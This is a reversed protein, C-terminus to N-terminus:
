RCPGTWRAPRSILLRWGSHAGNGFVNGGDARADVGGGASRAARAGVDREHGCRLHVVGRAHALGDGGPDVGAALVAHLFHGFLEGLAGVGARRQVEDAVQLRVLDPLDHSLDIEDLRHIRRLKQGHDFLARGPLADHLVDQQFHVDAALGGLAAHGGGGQRFQQFRGGAARMNADAAQHRDRGHCFSGVSIMCIKRFHM